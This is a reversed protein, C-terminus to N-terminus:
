AGKTLIFAAQVYINGAAADVGIAPMHANGNANFVAVRDFIRKGNEDQGSFEIVWHNYGIDTIGKITIAWPANSKVHWPGLATKGDITQWPEDSPMATTMNGTHFILSLDTIARCEGSIFIDWSGGIKGDIVAADNATTLGLAALGRDLYIRPAEGPNTKHRFSQAIAATEVLTGDDALRHAVM